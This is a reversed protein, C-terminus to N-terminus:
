GREIVALLDGEAERLRDEKSSKGQGSEELLKLALVSLSVEIYLLETQQQQLTETTTCIESYHARVFAEVESIEDDTLGMAHLQEREQSNFGSSAHHYWDNYELIWERMRSLDEESYGLNQLESKRDSLGLILFIEMCDQLSGQIREETEKEDMEQFALEGEGLLVAVREALQLVHEYVAQASKGQQVEFYVQALEKQLADTDDRYMETFPFEDEATELVPVNLVAGVLIAVLSFALVRKM